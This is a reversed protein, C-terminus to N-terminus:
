RGLLTVGLARGAVRLERHLTALPLSLRQALELHAADYITLECREALHLTGTWAQHHTEPISPLRLHACIQLRRM